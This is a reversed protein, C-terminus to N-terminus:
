HDHPVAARHTTLVTEATVLGREQTLADIVDFAASMPDPTGTVTTVVPIHHGLRPFHDGHPAHDAHFGWIGRVSTASRLGASRLGHIIARHVPQGDHRAAESTYVTLKVLAAMNAAADEEAPPHPRSILEGDRKCLSVKTITMLPNRFLGGLEPLLMAIREGAGVATIVLPTDTGHHPFQAPQRRGLRTGDAGSLVTAGAIERRYLLECATEFAPALYVRDQRGCYVTLRTAEDTNEGLWVPAIEGTLLRVPELTVLGAEALRLAEGLLAETNQRTDVAIATLPPEKAAQLSRDAHPEAAFGEASRLLISAATGRGAYLDTFARGPSRGDARHRQPFYGALEIGDEDM